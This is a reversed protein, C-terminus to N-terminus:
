NGKIVVGSGRGPHELKCWTAKIEGCTSTATGNVEANLDKVETHPVYFRQMYTMMNQVIILFRKIDNLENWNFKLDEWPINQMSWFRFADVSTKEIIEELPVFNGVSKSMKEGKEDTFYGHMM